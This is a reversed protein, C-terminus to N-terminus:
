RLPLVSEGSGASALCLFTLTILAVLGSFTFFTDVTVTRGQLHAARETSALAGSFWDSVSKRNLGPVVNVPLSNDSVNTHEARAM